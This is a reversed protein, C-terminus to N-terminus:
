WNEGKFFSSMREFGSQKAPDKKAPASTQQMKKAKGAARQKQGKSYHEDVRKREALRSKRAEPSEEAM